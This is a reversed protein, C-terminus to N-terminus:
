LVLVISPWSLSREFGDGRFEATLLHIGRSLKGLKVTVRGADTAAIPVTAVMRLGDRVVITGVAPSGDDTRVTVRYDVRAGGWVLLPASGSTSTGVPESPGSAAVEIPLTVATGGPGAIGLAVSGEIGAPVAFTVTATGQEDTTDVIELAVPSSGLVTGGLSVTAEGSSPGGNSFLLSSLEATVQEGARYAVGDAPPTLTAGVARQADDPAVPSNEGIHAVFADLDIRGSDATGSGQALTAFNDGGSALFSNTVVKIVRDDAVAEGGLTMATIRSGAAAAPDYVYAFGASLGLKLFPRAAGAPQWQEELV